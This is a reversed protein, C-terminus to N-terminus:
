KSFKKLLKIKAEILIPKGHGFCVKDFDIDKLQSLTKLGMELDENVISPSLGMNNACIDGAILLNDSKVFLSIHGASHGSTYHVEIGNGFPLIQKDTVFIINEIATIKQIDKVFINKLIKNIFGKTTKTNERLSVGNSLSVGDVESAYVPIHLAKQITAAAGSHDAHLHTLVIQKIDSPQKGIEKLAKYIKVEDGEYGADVLTLGTADEIVFCNVAGLGIQYIHEGIKKISSKAMGTQISLITVILIAIVNRM